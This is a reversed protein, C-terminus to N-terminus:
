THAANAAKWLFLSDCVKRMSEEESPMETDLRQQTTHYFYCLCHCDEKAMLSAPLFLWTVSLNDQMTADPPWSTCYVSDPKKFHVMQKIQHQFHECPLAHCTDCHVHNMTLFNYYLFLRLMVTQKHISFQSPLHKDEPQVNFLSFVDHSCAKNVHHVKVRPLLYYNAETALLPRFYWSVSNFPHQKGPSFLFNHM